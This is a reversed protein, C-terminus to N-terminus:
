KAYKELEVTQDDNLNDKLSNLSQINSSFLKGHEKLERAFNCLKSISEFNYYKLEGVGPILKIFADFIRQCSSQQEECSQLLHVEDQHQVKADHALLDNKPEKDKALNKGDISSVLCKDTNGVDVRKLQQLLEQVESNIRKVIEERRQAPNKEMEQVAVAVTEM